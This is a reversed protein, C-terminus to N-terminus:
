APRAREGERRCVALMVERLGPVLFAPAAALRGAIGRPTMSYTYRDLQLLSFGAQALVWRLDAQTYERHHGVYPVASRYVVEIPQGPHRGRPIGRLHGWYLANPVECLFVGDPQLSERCAGLLHRPTHPLHELVALCSVVGATGALRAPLGGPASALDADVFEVGFERAVRGYMDLFAPPYFAYREVVTVHRGLLALAVPFVPYFCGVEVWRGAPSPSFEAARRIALRYRGISSHLYNSVDFSDPHLSVDNRSAAAQMSRDALYPALRRLAEAYAKDFSEGGSM